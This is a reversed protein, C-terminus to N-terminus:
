GQSRGRGRVGLRQVKRRLLTVPGQHQEVQHRVQLSVRGRVRARVRVRVGVRM